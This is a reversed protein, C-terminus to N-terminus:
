TGNRNKMKTSNTEEHNMGEKMELGTSFCHLKVVQGVTDDSTCNFNVQFEPWPQQFGGVLLAQGVFQRSVFDLKNALM